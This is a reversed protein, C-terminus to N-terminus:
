VKYSLSYFDASEYLTLSYRLGYLRNENLRKVKDQNEIFRIIFDNNFSLIDPNLQLNDM